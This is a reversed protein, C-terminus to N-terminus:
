QKLASRTLAFLKDVDFTIGFNGRVEKEKILETANAYTVSFPLSVGLKIPLELKFQAVALDAKKDPQGRNERMRQYRFNFSYTIKSLDAEGINFPSNAKGEFSIAAAIDRWREQNKM